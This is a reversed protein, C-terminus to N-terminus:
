AYIWDIHEFSVIKVVKGDELTQKQVVRKSFSYVPIFNARLLCEELISMFWPAGGIMVTAVHYRHAIKRIEIAREWMIDANPPSDFTLLKHIEEKSEPNPNFVGARKQSETPEHQTLNLIM